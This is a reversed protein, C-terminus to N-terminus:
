FKDEIYFKYISHILQYILRLQCNWYYIFFSKKRFKASLVNSSSPFTKLTNSANQEFVFDRCALEPSWENNNYYTISCSLTSYM